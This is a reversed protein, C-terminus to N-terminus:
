RLRVFRIATWKPPHDPGIPDGNPDPAVVMLLVLDGSIQLYQDFDYEGPTLVEPVRVSTLDPLHYGVLDGALDIWLLWDESLGIQSPVDGDLLREALGTSLDALYLSGALPDGEIAVWAAWHGAVVSATWYEPPRPDEVAIDVLAGSRLDFVRPPKGPLDDRVQPADEAPPRRGLLWGSWSVYPSIGALAAAPLM